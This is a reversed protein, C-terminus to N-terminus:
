AAHDSHKSDPYGLLATHLLSEKKRWATSAEELDAGRLNARELDAGRLNAGELHARWLDFGKFPYHAERWAYIAEKGQRVIAVHEPNAM